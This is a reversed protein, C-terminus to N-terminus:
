GLLLQLQVHGLRAGLPRLLEVLEVHGVRHQGVRQAARQLLRDPGLVHGGVLQVAHHVRAALAQAVQHALAAAVHRPHGVGDSRGPSSAATSASSAAASSASATTMGKPPPELM